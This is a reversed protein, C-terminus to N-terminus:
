IWHKLRLPTSPIVGISYWTGTSTSSATVPYAGGVQQTATPSNLSNVAWVVVYNNVSTNAGPGLRARVWVSGTRLSGMDCIVLAMKPTASTGTAQFRAFSGDSVGVLRPADSVTGLTTPPITFNSGVAVVNTARLEKHQSVNQEHIAHEKSYAIQLSGLIKIESFDELNCEPNAPLVVPKVIIREVDKKNNITM